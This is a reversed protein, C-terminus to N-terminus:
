FLTMTPTRLLRILVHPTNWTKTANSFVCYSYSDCYAARDSNECHKQSLSVYNIAPLGSSSAYELKRSLTKPFKSFLFEFPSVTAVHEVELKLDFGALIDSM